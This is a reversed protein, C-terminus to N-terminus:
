DSPRDRPREVIYLRNGDPDRFTFMPVPYPILEADVDVGLDRLRAHDAAADQTTLRVRTDIGTSSGDSPRVLAISTAAGEPAVEVWREGEGFAVDMRTQFGLTDCYFALARDQDAVPIGVTGLQTIHSTTATMDM